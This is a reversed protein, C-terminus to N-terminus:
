VALVTARFIEYNETPIHLFASIQHVRDDYFEFCTKYEDHFESRIVILPIVEKVFIVAFLHEVLANCRHWTRPDGYCYRPIKCGLWL